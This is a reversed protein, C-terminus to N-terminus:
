YPFGSVPASCRLFQGASGDAAPPRSHDHGHHRLLEPEIEAAGLLIKSSRWIGISSNHLASFEPPQNIRIEMAVPVPRISRHATETSTAGTGGALVPAAPM